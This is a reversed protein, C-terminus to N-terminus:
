IKSGIPAGDVSLYKAVEWSLDDHRVGAFKRDEILLEGTKGTLDQYFLRRGSLIPLVRQIVAEPDDCVLEFDSGDTPPDDGILLIAPTIGLIRFRLPKPM